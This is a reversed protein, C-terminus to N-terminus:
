ILSLTGQVRLTDKGVTLDIKGERYWDGLLDGPMSVQQWSLERPDFGKEEALPESPPLSHCGYFLVLLLLTIPYISIKLRFAM